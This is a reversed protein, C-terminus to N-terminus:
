IFADISSREQARYEYGIGFDTAIKNVRKVAESRTLRRTEQLFGIAQERQDTRVLGYLTMEWRSDVGPAAPPLWEVRISSDPIGCMLIRRLDDPYHQRKYEVLEDLIAEVDNSKFENWMAPNDAEITEWAARYGERSNGLNVSENWAINAFM